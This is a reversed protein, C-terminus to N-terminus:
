LFLPLPKPVEMGAQEWPLWGPDRVVCRLRSGGGAGSVVEIEDEVM